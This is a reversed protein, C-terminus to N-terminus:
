NAMKFRSIRWKLVNLRAIVKCKAALRTHSERIVNDKTDKTLGAPVSTMSNEDLACNLRYLARLCSEKQRFVTSFPRTNVMHAVSLWEVIEGFERAKALEDMDKKGIRGGQEEVVVEGGCDGEGAWARWDLLGWVPIEIEGKVFVRGEGLMCGPVPMLVQVVAKQGEQREGSTGADGVNEVVWPAVGRVLAVGVCTSVYPSPPLRGQVYPLGKCRGGGGEGRVGAGGWGEEVIVLGVLAGNLARGVEGPVVDEYGAGSLVVGDVGEGVEVEYPVQAVLPVDTDWRVVRARDRAGVVKLGGGGDEDEGGRYKDDEEDAGGGGGGGGLHMGGSMAGIAGADVGGFAYGGGVAGNGNGNARENGYENEGRGGLAEFCFVVDPRAWEEVRATLDAGLGKSWGMTNVVLPVVDRIKKGRARSRHQAEEKEKEEGEGEDEDGDKDRNEDEDLEEDYDDGEVGECVAVEDRYRELCARVGELYLDPVALPTVAGVYHAAYPIRLHTFPPGAGWTGLGVTFGMWVSSVCLLVLRDFPVLRFGFFFRVGRPPVCRIRRADNGEGGWWTVLWWDSSGECEPGVGFAVCGGLERCLPSRLGFYVVRHLSVGVSVFRFSVFRLGLFRYRFTVPVRSSEQEDVQAGARAQEHQREQEHAQEHARVDYAGVFAREGVVCLSVMGGVTFESQGVDCELFAVREYRGLLGNLLTRAFSSKGSNRPGKVLYTQPGVATNANIPPNSSPHTHCCPRRPPSRMPLLRQVGDMSHSIWRKLGRRPFPALDRSQKYVIYVGPVRLVEPHREADPHVGWNLRRQWRSPRFVDEFPRCVVGLREVGTRLTQVAIVAGAKWFPDEPQVLSQVRLPLARFVSQDLVHGARKGVFAAKLIPLPASSPAFVKHVRVGGGGEVGVRTGFLDVCGHVMGLAFTGLLCLTEHAPLLVLTTASADPLGLAAAEAASIGFMNEGEVPRFTSLTEAEQEEKNQGAVVANAIAEEASSSGSERGAGFRRRRGVPVFVVGDDEDADGSENESGSESQSESESESSGLEIVDAQMKFGDEGVTFYRERKGGRGGGGRKSEAKRHANRGGGRGRGGSVPDGYGVRTRKSGSAGPVVEVPVNKRKASGVRTSSPSSGANKTTANRTSISTPYRPSESTNTTPTPTSTAAAAAKRAALASIMALKIRDDRRTRYRRPVKLKRDRSWIFWVYVHSKAVRSSANLPEARATAVLISQSANYLVPTSGFGRTQSCGSHILLVNFTMYRESLIIAHVAEPIM